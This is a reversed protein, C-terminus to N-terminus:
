INDFLVKKYNIDTPELDQTQPNKNKQSFEFARRIGLFLEEFGPKAIFDFAQYKAAEQLHEIEYFATYIIFPIRTDRERVLKLFDIGNVKPMKLDSVICDYNNNELEKIALEPKLTAFCNVGSDDLIEKLSELIDLEDDVLIINM